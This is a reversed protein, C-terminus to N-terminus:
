LNNEEHEARGRGTKSLEENVLRQIKRERCRREYERCKSRNKRQWEAHYARHKAKREETTM